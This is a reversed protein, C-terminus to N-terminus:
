FVKRPAVALVAPILIIAAALVCLSGVWSVFGLSFIGQHHSVMLAGFGLTTTLAALIVGKGTSFPLHGPAVTGEKWRNLIIVGYEVGAGVVLPMFVGNALNFDVGVWGMVGVTWLTGVILPILALMAMTLRRFTFMLLIFIVVLAYASAQICAKMYANAFLYLSVPEGAVGPEAGQLQQVFRALAGADWVSERPYIRILYEGDQWFWDRLFKPLDMMGMNRVTAAERFFDWTKILDDQFRKRYETLAASSTEPSQQVLRIIDGSVLRVKAMQEELPKGAGWKAAQDEQMKFRVRELIEVLAILDSPGTDVPTPALEPITPFLSRILPIKEEQHKPLLDFVSEVEAVTSLKALVASKAQVEEPSLAFVSASVLSRQSNDILTKEWVVSEASANQLRLPNLEFGVRRASWAAVICLLLATVLIARASRNSLRLLDKNNSSVVFSDQRKRKALIISLAPLVTFNGILIILIGVGTVIGLEMLGQFGTLIFPLFCCAASLGALLIGAGSRNTVEWIVERPTRGDTREEEEYRAIWHIGYDVGLGCLLPAFVVSLISLHGVLLTIFGTTWSLAVGLTIMEALSRRFSRLFLLMLMSVGALSLITARDMDKMANAMEDTNLAGQGTVGAGVDPFAALTDRVLQRLYELSDLERTFGEGVKKPIVFALLYRKNGEWFYGELDLNWGTNKFFAVWPSTYKRGGHLYSSLGELMSILSDLGMPEQKKVTKKQPGEEDLFGTFLEGVMRSAMEQNILKLYALLDPNRALGQILNDYGKIDASLRHLDEPSLYLFAWRKVLSPDVRYFFDQFYAGDRDIRVSLADLFAIAREPTPSEVVITFSTKGGFNFAGLKDSVAVLPHDPAILELQDTKFDLKSVTLAVSGLALLFALGLVLM